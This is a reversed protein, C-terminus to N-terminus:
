YQNAKENKQNKRYKQQEYVSILHKNKNLHAMTLNEQRESFDEISEGHKLIGALAMSTNDFNAAPVRILPTLVFRINNRQFVKYTKMSM